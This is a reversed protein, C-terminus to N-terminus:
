CVASPIDSSRRSRTSGCHLAEVSPKGGWEALVHVASFQVGEWKSHLLAEVEARRKMTPKGRKLDRLRATVSQLDDMQSDLTVGHGGFRCGRLALMGHGACVGKTVPSIM